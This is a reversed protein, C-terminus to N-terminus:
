YSICHQSRIRSCSCLHGLAAALSHALLQLPARTGSRGLMSCTRAAAYVEVLNERGKVLKGLGHNVPLAAPRMPQASETARSRGAIGRKLAANAPPVADWAAPITVLTRAPHSMTTCRQQCSKVRPWRTCTGTAPFTSPQASSGCLM